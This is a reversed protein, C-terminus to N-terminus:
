SMPMVTSPTLNTRTAPTMPAVSSISANAAAAKDFRTVATVKTEGPPFTPFRHLEAAPDAGKPEAGDLRTDELITPIAKANMPPLVRWADGFEM